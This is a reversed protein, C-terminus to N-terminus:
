RVITRSKRFREVNDIYLCQTGNLNLAHPVTHAGRRNMSSLDFNITAQKGKQDVRYRSGFYRMMRSKVDRRASLLETRTKLMGYLHFSTSSSTLKHSEIVDACEFKFFELLDDVAKKKMRDNVSSDADIDILWYNTMFPIEASISVVRPNIVQEWNSMTLTTPAGDINRIVTYENLKTYLFLVIRRGKVENVINRRNMNYYKEVMGESLGSTYYQNKLLITDDPM